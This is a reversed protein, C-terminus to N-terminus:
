NGLRDPMDALVYTLIALSAVCRSLEQPNEKDLTDAQSHHYDFYKEGYTGFGMLMGGAEKMPGVDAGSHGASIKRVGLPKILRALDKVQALARVQRDADKCDVSVSEPAFGGSDSEIAAILNPVEAAHDKAYQKGGALGNEENTFLVVRITRRPHLNMKRLVNLAEMCMVAGAGDDHAGQGVDWSDIHGGMVVVEEPRESGRIEAVVNASPADPETHAEMKLRVVVKQGRELLRSIIDADETSIAAAPIKAVGDDYHMAGTHPSRFSRATVSRILCAVAGKKAALSAGKTRFKVTEGYRSGHVDDFPPMVNDFLVIKDKAGDGLADLGAEDRVMVVPATIGGAPTAVSGGLGLMAMNLLRPEVMTASEQGRVWHPVMTKETHVNEQGDREFTQAAWAVAKDLNESGSLRNGIGDCLEQMKLWSDNHTLTEHIIREACPKYRDATTCGALFTILVAGALARRIIQIQM